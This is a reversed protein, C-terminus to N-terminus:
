FRVIVLLTPTSSQPFHRKQLAGTGFGSCRAPLEATGAQGAAPLLQPSRGADGARGWRAGASCGEGPGATDTSERGANGRGESGAWPAPCRAPGPKWKPGQLDHTTHSYHPSGARGKNLLLPSLATPLM